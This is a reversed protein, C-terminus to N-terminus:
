LLGADAFSIYGDEVLIFHDLLEVNILRLAQSIKISIIENYKTPKINGSPHNHAIVVSSCLLQLAVSCLLKMDVLCDRM